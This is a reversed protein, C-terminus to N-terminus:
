WACTAEKRFKCALRAAKRWGLKGGGKAAWDEAGEGAEVDPGM